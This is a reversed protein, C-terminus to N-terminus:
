HTWAGVGEPMHARIREIVSERQGGFLIHMGHYGDMWSRKARTSLYAGSGDHVYRRLDKWRLRMRRLPYRATIGQEDIAFRSAFFFRNLALLLLVAAFVGWWLSQMMVGCLVAMASIVALVVLSPALRERAPHAHWSFEQKPVDKEPM